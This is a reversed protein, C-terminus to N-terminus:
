SAPPRNKPISRSPRTAPHVTVGLEAWRALLDGFEVYSRILRDLRAVVIHDGKSLKLLFKEGAERKSLPLGGSLADDMFVEDLHRGIRHCNAAIIRAQVEPSEFEDLNSARVYGYTRGMIPPPDSSTRHSASSTM